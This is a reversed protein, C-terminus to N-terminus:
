FPRSVYGYVLPTQPLAREPFKPIRLLMCLKRPFLDNLLEDNDDNSASSSSSSVM